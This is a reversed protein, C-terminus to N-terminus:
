MKSTMDLFYIIMELNDARDDSNKQIKDSNEYQPQKDQPYFNDRKGFRILSNRM